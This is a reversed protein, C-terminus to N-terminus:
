LESDESMEYERLERRARKLTKDRPAKCRPYKIFDQLISASIMKDSNVIKWPVTATGFEDGLTETELDAIIPKFGFEEEDEPCLVDLGDLIHSTKQSKMLEYLYNTWRFRWFTTYDLSWEKVLSVRNKKLWKLYYSKKLFGNSLWSFDLVFRGSGPINFEVWAHNKETGDSDHLIGQYLTATPNDIMILMALPAWWNSLSVNAWDQIRYLAKTKIIKQMSSGCFYLGEISDMLEALYKRSKSERSIRWVALIVMIVIITIVAIPWVKDFCDQGGM